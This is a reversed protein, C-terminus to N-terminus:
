WHKMMISHMTCAICEMISDCEIIIYLSLPQKNNLTLCCAVCKSHMACAICEIIIFCHYFM